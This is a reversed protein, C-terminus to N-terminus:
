SAPIVITFYDITYTTADSIAATQVFMDAGAGGVTGQVRVQTPSDVGTDAQQIYRFFTATGAAVSLGSWVQGTQKSIGGSDPADFELGNGAGSGSADSYTNLLVAAGLAGDATAPMTGAYLKIYGDTLLTSLSSTGLIGNKLGTSFQFAM